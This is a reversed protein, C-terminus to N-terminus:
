ILVECNGQHVVECPHPLAPFAVRLHLSSNDSERPDNQVIPNAHCVMVILRLVKENESM